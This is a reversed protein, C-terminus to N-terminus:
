TMRVKMTKAAKVSKEIKALFPACISQAAEADSAGNLQDVFDGLEGAMEVMEETGKQTKFYLKGAIPEMEDALALLKSKVDPFSTKEAIERFTQSIERVYHTGMKQQSM